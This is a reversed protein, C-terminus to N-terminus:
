SIGQLIRVFLSPLRLVLIFAYLASLTFCIWIWLRVLRSPYSLGKYPILAFPVAYVSCSLPFFFFVGWLAIAYLHLLESVSGIGKVPDVTHVPGLILDILLIVGTAKTVRKLVVVSEGQFWEANGPTDKDGLIGLLILVPPPFLAAGFGFAYPSRGQIWALRRAWIAGLARLMLELGTFLFLPVGQEFALLAVFFFFSLAGLLAGGVIASSYQLKPKKM